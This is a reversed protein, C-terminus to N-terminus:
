AAIERKALSAQLFRAATEVPIAAGVDPGRMITNIGILRGRADVMPGGSHGPRLHVSAMLWERRPLRKVPWWAELGIMVGATLGGDIGWPFGMAFIIEGPRMAASSGLEIAPLEIASISLAALDLNRDSALVRAPYRGGNNDRVLLNKNAAVHANTLILGESHWVTGAGAGHGRSEIRVMGRRAKEAIAAMNHKLEHFIKM